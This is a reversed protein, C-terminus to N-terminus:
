GRRPRHVDRSHEAMESLPALGLGFAECAALWAREDQEGVADWEIDDPDLGFSGWDGRALLEALAWAPPLVPLEDRQRQTAPAVRSFWSAKRPVIEYRETKFVTQAANVAVEPVHPIQTTWGAQRLAEIGIIMASPMAMRLALGWNPSAEVLLNCYVDSRGGLGDVLGRKKWLFLYQSATKSDWGFRLTLDAGRFLAPLGQLRELASIESKGATSGM